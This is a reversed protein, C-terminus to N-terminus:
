YVIVYGQTVDEATRCLDDYDGSKMAEMAEDIEDQDKGMEKMVKVVLGMIYFSNGLTSTKDIEHMM